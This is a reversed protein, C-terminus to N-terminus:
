VILKKNIVEATYIDLDEQTKIESLTAWKFDTNETTDLIPIGTTKAMYTLRVVHKDEGFFIDQAHLLKPESEITLNTEEKVERALNELLTGKSEIRGGVIDWVGKVNKYKTTNRKLLLYKEKNNKLFVKVGVQLQM